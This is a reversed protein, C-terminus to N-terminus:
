VLKDLQENLFELAQQGYESGYQNHTAAETGDCCYPDSSDCYSQIKSASPCVFDAPRPAFGNATCTGVNYPFGAIYRPDGMFIAAAIKKIASPQIAVSVDDLGENTDGGGCFANDMIQAGQSYGVLVLTTDPCQTNFADVQSAVTATGQIVSDAYNIDGCINHGGCAPYNIAEATSGPHSNLILDVVARTLGYGPTATSERAGFVHIPPCAREESNTEAATAQIAVLIFSAEEFACEGM